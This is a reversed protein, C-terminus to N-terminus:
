DGDLGQCLFDFGVDHNHGFHVWLQMARSDAGPRVSTTLTGEAHIGKLEGTGCLIRIRVENLTVGTTPIRGHGVLEVVAGGTTGAVTLSDFTELVRFTTHTQGLVCSDRLQKTLVQGTGEMIGTYNVTGSNTQLVVNTSPDTDGCDSLTEAVTTISVAGSGQEM